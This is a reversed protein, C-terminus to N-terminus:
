KLIKESQEEQEAKAEQQRAENKERLQKNLGNLLEASAKRKQEAIQAESVKKDLDSLAAEIQEPKKIIATFVKDKGTPVPGATV